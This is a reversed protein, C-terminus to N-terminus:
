GQKPPKRPITIIFTTGKGVESTFDMTGGHSEIVRKCISLGFGMGKAKTTFLPRWIKDFNEEPIGVGTDSIYIKVNDGVINSGIRIEGGDPMADVANSILNTLAKQILREDAEFGHQMSTLDILDINEPMSYSELVHALIGSPDTLTYDLDLKRSYDLLDNIINNSYDINNEIIDFMCKSDDDFSPGLESRLFYTAGAIGTLPNRLDHGIMTALEGIAALREFERLERTREDVMEELHEAYERLERDMRKRDTINRNFSLSAPKGEYDILSVYTEVDIIRGDTRRMKFEYRKPHNEGHQRGETRRVVMEKDEVAIFEFADRGILEYSDDLGVLEAMRRNAYVNKSGSVVMVADMSEELLTRFKEESERLKEMEDIRTLASAVHLAIIEVVRKDEETFANLKPSKIDLVAVGESAVIIPVALESRAQIGGGLIRLVYNPDKRTDQVLQTEMKKVARIEIGPGNLPLEFTIDNDAEEFSVSILSEDRVVALLGYKFGLVRDIANITIEAVSEITDASALRSAHVHLGEIKAKYLHESETLQIKLITSAVHGALIELLKRDEENFSDLITSGINIVAIVEDEVKVPIDMESLITYIDEVPGALYDEDERVDPVLQAEGTRVARVTIGPGYLPLKSLEKSQAGRTLIEILYDNEVISFSGLNFGLIKEMTDFTIQAVELIDSANVLVSANVNLAELRTEYNMLDTVDRVFGEFGIHTGDEGLRRSFSIEIWSLSGDQRPLNIIRKEVTGKVRLQEILSETEEESIYRQWKMAETDIMEETRSGLITAFAQNVYVIKGNLDTQFLGDSVTDLLKKFRSEEYMRSTDSIEKIESAQVSETDKVLM